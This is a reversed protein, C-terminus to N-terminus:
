TPNATMDLPDCILHLRRAAIRQGPAADKPSDGLAASGRGLIRRESLESLGPGGCLADVVGAMPPAAGLSPSAPALARGDMRRRRRQTGDFSVVFIRQGELWWMELPQIPASHRKIRGSGASDDEDQEGGTIERNFHPDDCPTDPSRQSVMLGNFNRANRCIRNLSLEHCRV